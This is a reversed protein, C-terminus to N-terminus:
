WILNKLENKSIPLFNNYVMSAADQTKHTDIYTNNDYYEKNWSDVDSIKNFYKTSINLSM